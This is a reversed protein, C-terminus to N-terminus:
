TQSSYGQVHRLVSRGIAEGLKVPVANGILRGITKRAIPEGPKVFRYEPPFSQLIAGERLSIARDQVPHGFRGSGFGYYQTTITPAPDDWTMRGYVGPYSKGTGKVHCKAVLDAPWDRWTGGPRSARIRKLNIPALESASHLPDESWSEGAEIHPLHGIADRVTVSATEDADLLQIPGLKSALLVMRRRAQPVGYRVCEVIQYSVSFGSAELSGVFDQFVTEREVQPVNEMTVINADAEVILRKFEAILNWRIDESPKRAQSYTSFPQCPACGALLRFKADGFAERIDDGTLESVSKPLFRARNNATYAYECNPDLDVGLRVSIGVRELGHTLGGAGCFLDVGVIRTPELPTLTVPVRPRHSM